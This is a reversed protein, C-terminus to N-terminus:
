QFLVRSSIRLGTVISLGSIIRFGNRFGNPVNRYFFAFSLYFHLTGFFFNLKVTMLITCFKAKIKLRSVGLVTIVISPPSIVPSYSLWNLTM